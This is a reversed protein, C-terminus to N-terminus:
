AELFRDRSYEIRGRVRPRSNTAGTTLRRLEDSFVWSPNIVSKVKRGAAQLAMAAGVSVAEFLNIPTQGKRTKLGSPFCDALFTFTEQFVERRRDVQPSEHACKTFDNLFDKVSHDFNVYGELFSFFRLILDQPTGDKWRTKPLVVVKRFCSDNALSTLLDIFDGRYVCERIQHPTLVVGGTNLREFLDYRVQLESKDNLVVVKLPRDEFGTRLDEPLDEFSCGEFTHLKELDKLVLPKEELHAVNRGDSDGAFNLLTMLRQLGDVVEWQTGRYEYTNTAMFLPPVPIGLFVSEILRSQRVDDWVFQRQYSPAIDIRKRSTRRLLEDVTVDLTDFDVERRQKALQARQDSPSSRRTTM